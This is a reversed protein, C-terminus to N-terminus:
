CFVVAFYRFLDKKVPVFLFIPFAVEAILTLYTLPTYIFANNRFLEAMSSNM